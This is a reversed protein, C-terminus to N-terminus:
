IIATIESSNPAINTKNIIIKNKYMAKLTKFLTKISFSSNIFNANTPKIDRKIIRGHDGSGQVRNLDIGKEVALKKALPSAIIRGNSKAKALSLTSVEPVSKVEPVVETIPPTREVKRTSTVDVTSSQSHSALVGSIDTGKKGIIALVSDVPASEGENLGIYLLTGEHFSEFEMTAKDTEIEAILDGSVVSDGEKVLWKALTGEEMTPSLAPMLIETPM